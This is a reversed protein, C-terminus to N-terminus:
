PIVEHYLPRWKSRSWFSALFLPLFKDRILLLLNLHMPIREFDLSAVGLFALLMEENKPNTDTMEFLTQFLDFEDPLDM